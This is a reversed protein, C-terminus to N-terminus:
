TTDIAHLKWMIKENGSYPIYKKSVKEGLGLGLGAGCFVVITRHMLYYM